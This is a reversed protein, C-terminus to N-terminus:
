ADADTVATNGCKQPLEATSREAVREALHPFNMAM